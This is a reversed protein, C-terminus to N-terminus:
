NLSIILFLAIARLYTYLPTDIVMFHQRQFRVTVMKYTHMPRPHDHVHHLIPQKALFTGCIGSTIVVLKKGVERQKDM